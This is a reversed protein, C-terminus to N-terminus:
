FRLKFLKSTFIERLFFFTKFRNDLIQHPQGMIEDSVWPGEVKRYGNEQDGWSCLIVAPAGTKVDTNSFSSSLSFFLFASILQTLDRRLAKKWRVTTWNSLQTQSKAVGRVAVCSAERDKVIEGLRSLSMAMSDAIGDLWSMRQQRIRQKGEIKGLM